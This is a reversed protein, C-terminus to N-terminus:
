PTILAESSVWFLLEGSPPALQAAVPVVHVAWAPGEETLLLNRRAYRVLWVLEVDGSFEAADPCSATMTGGEPELFVVRVEEGTETMGVTWKDPPQLPYGGRDADHAPAPLSAELKLYIDQEPEAPLLAARQGDIITAASELQRFREGEPSVMEVPQSLNSAPRNVSTCAACCSWIVAWIRNNM